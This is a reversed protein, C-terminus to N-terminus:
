SARPVAHDDWGELIQFDSCFEHAHTEKQYQNREKADGGERKL